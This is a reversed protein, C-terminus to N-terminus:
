FESGQFADMIHAFGDATWEVVDFRATCTCSHETMYALATKIIKRRKRMDVSLLGTGAGSQHRAKVEVFVLTEGDQMVADIEGFPSHYRKALLVMGRQQLAEIAKAEGMLGKEYTGKPM